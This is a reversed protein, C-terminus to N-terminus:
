RLLVMRRTTIFDGAQLRCFYLGSAVARGNTDRGDWLVRHEGPQMAEAVLTRVCRGQCDYIALKVVSAAGLSFPISTGPNFPNPQNQELSWGLAPTWVDGAASMLNLRYIGEGLLAALVTTGTEPDVTLARVDANDPLGSDMRRWSDGGDTSCFVQVSDDVTGAYVNMPDVPDVAVSVVLQSNLGQGPGLLEWDAGSNTSRFVGKGYGAVYLVAPNAPDLAIDRLEAEYHEDLLTDWAAGDSHSALLGDGIAAYVTHPDLPDVLIEFFDWRSFELTELQEWAEAHNVSRYMKSGFVSSAGAYL